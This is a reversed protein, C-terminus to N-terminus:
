RTRTIAIRGVPNSFGHLGPLLDAIGAIGPHMHIVGNEALAPDSTGTGPVSSSVGTLVPCPPVLDAFDETNIESGADYADTDLVVAEGVSSPLRFSDLGTFGDNTCILMSVFSLFRAGPQADITVTVRQGPGLPPPTGAAAVVVASVHDDNELAQQLPALNGNEAVQRVGFSAPRGVDFVDEGGQHTAILPPTLWQGGTLNEITVEYTRAVSRGGNRDGVGARVGAADSLPGDSGCGTAM